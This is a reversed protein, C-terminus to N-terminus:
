LATQRKWETLNAIAAILEHSQVPKSLHMQYGALM